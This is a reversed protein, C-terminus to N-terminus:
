AADDEEQMREVEHLTGCRQCAVVDHEEDAEESHKVIRTVRVKGELRGAFGRCKWCRVVPM